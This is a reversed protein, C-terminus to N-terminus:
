NRVLKGNSACLNSFSGCCNRQVFGDDKRHKALAVLAPVAGKELIILRNVDNDVAMNGLARAAWPAEVSDLRQACMILAEVVGDLPCLATRGDETRCIDGAQRCVIEASENSDGASLKRLSAACLSIDEASM